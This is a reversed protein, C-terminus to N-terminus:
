KLRYAKEARYQSGNATLLSSYLIFGGVAFPESAYLAHDTLYDLVHGNQTRKLKALSVHPTYKRGDAKLGIRQLASEIKRQLHLLADNAEVGVWLAHPHKGGFSGV